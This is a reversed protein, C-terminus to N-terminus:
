VPLKSVLLNAADQPFRGAPGIPRYPPFIRRGIQAAHENRSRVPARGILHQRVIRAGSLWSADIQCFSRPHRM